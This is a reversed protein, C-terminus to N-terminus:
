LAIPIVCYVNVSDSIEVYCKKTSYLINNTPMNPWSKIVIPLILGFRLLHLKLKIYLVPHGLFELFM